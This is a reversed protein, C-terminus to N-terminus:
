MTRFRLINKSCYREDFIIKQNHALSTLCEILKDRLSLVDPRNEIILDLVEKYKYYIEASLEKLEVDNLINRRINDNYERIIYSIKDDINEEILIDSLVESIAEYSFSKWYNQEEVSADRPAIGNPTLYIYMNRYNTYNKEIYNRYKTLQNDHDDTFTKNEIILNLKHESNTYFIDINSKSERFVEAKSFDTLLIEIAKIDLIQENGDLLKLM